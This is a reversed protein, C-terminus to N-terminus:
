IADVVPKWEAFSSEDKLSGWQKQPEAVLVKLWPLCILNLNLIQM